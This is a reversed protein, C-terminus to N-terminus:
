DFLSSFSAGMLPRTLLAWAYITTASELDIKGMIKDFNEKDKRDDVIRRKEIGRVIVHHLTGPARGGDHTEPGGEQRASLRVPSVPPCGVEGAQADDV